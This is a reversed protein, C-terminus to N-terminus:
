KSILGGRGGGRRLSRGSLMWSLEDLQCGDRVGMVGDVYEVAGDDAPETDWVWGM